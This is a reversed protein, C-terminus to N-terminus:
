SNRPARAVFREITDLYEQEVPDTGGYDETEAHGAIFHGSGPSVWVQLLDPRVNARLAAVSEEVPVWRDVAGFIALMPKNVRALTIRPDFDMEQRWKSVTVDEPLQSDVRRLPFYADAFWPEARAADIDRQLAARDAPARFYADIRTRLALASAIVDESYGGERLNYEAAFSMQRAPTVGPGSVSISFAFDDSLTTALPAIWGGQSIGWAGIRRPDINAHRKLVQVAAIGDRALDEFTATTFDGPQGNTGRRNFVFTAVGQAPLDTKLHNYFPFSAAGGNAAHYAILLPARGAGDPRYLTGSFTAGNVDFAIAETRVVAIAPPASACAGLSLLSAGILARRHLTTM